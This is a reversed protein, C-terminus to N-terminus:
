ELVTQDEVPTGVYRLHTNCLTLVDGHRIGIKDGTELPNGNIFTPNQNKANSAYVHFRGDRAKVVELFLHERSMGSDETVILIDAKPATKYTMRGVLQRGEQLPYVKQTLLDLLYGASEAKARPVIHTRDDSPAPTAPKPASAAVVRKFDEFHNKVKCSPCVVYKGANAPNDVAELIVGCSPCKIRIKEM